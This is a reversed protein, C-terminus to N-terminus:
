GEGDEAADYPQDLDVRVTEQEGPEVTIEIVAPYLEADRDAFKLTYKGPVVNKLYVLGEMDTAAQDVQVGKSNFLQVVCGTREGGQTAIISVEGPAPDFCSSLLAAMGAALVIVLLYRM